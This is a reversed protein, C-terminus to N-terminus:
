LGYDTWQYKDILISKPVLFITIQDKEQSHYISYKFPKFDEKMDIYEILEKQYGVEEPYLTEDTIYFSMVIKREECLRNIQYSIWKEETNILIKIIGTQPHIKKYVSTIM